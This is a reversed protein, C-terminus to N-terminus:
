GQLIGLSLDFTILLKLTVSWDQSQQCQLCPCPVGVISGKILLAEDQVVASLVSYVLSWALSMPDM